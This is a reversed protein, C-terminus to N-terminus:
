CCTVYNQLKLPDKGRRLSPGNDIHLIDEKVKLRDASMKCTINQSNCTSSCHLNPHVHRKFSWKRLIDDWFQPHRIRPSAGKLPPKKKKNKRKKQCASAMSKLPKQWTWKWQVHVVTVEGALERRCKNNTSRHPHGTQSTTNSKENNQNVNRCCNPNSHM